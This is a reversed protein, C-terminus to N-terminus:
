ELVRPPDEPQPLNDVSRVQWVRDSYDIVAWSGTPVHAAISPDMAALLPRIVADHTVIGIVRYGRPDSTLLELAGLARQTVAESPEVGPADDVSGWQEVVEKRSRGTWQGYDRDTFGSTVQWPVDSNEAIIQATLRARRLPSAAFYEIGSSRLAIGAAAAEAIGTADLEPDALGRLRDAANLATRGHRVLYFRVQHSHQM